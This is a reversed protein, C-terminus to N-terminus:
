DFTRVYPLYFGYCFGFLLSSFAVFGPWSLLPVPLLLMGLIKINRGYLETKLFSYYTLYIDHPLLLISISTFSLLHILTIPAANIAGKLTALIPLGGCCCMIWLANDNYVRPM